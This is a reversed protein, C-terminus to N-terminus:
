HGAARGKWFAKPGTRMDRSARTSDLLAHGKPSDSQLPFLSSLLNLSPGFLQTSPRMSLGPAASSFHPLHAVKLLWCLQSIQSGFTDTTMRIGCRCATSPHIFEEEERRRRDEGDVREKWEWSTRDSGRIFPFVVSNPLM